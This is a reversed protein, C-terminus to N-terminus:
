AHLHVNFVIYCPKPKRPHIQWFCWTMPTTRTRLHNYPTNRSREKTLKFCNDKMQDLSTRLVIDLCIILLYPALTDGQLVGTVIDFYHREVNPSHVKIKTNGYLMIIAAVNEKPLRLHTTNAGNKRHTHLWLGKVSPWFTHRRQDIERFAM